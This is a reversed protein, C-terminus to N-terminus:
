FFPCPCLTRTRAQRQQSPQSRFAIERIPEGLATEERYVFKNAGNHRSGILWIAEFTRGRAKQRIKMRCRKYECWPPAPTVWSLFLRLMLDVLLMMMMMQTTICTLYNTLQTRTSMYVNTVHVSHSLHSAHALSVTCPLACVSKSNM